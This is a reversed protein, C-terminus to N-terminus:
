PVIDTRFRFASIRFGFALGFSRLPSGRVGLSPARCRSGRPHSIGGFIHLDRLVESIKYYM